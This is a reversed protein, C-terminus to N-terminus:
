ITLSKFSRCYAYKVFLCLFVWKQTLESQQLGTSQLGALVETWPVEWALISSHTAVGEELTDEQGLSTVWM